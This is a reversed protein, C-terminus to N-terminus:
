KNNEIINTVYEKNFWYCFKDAKGGNPNDAAGLYSNKTGKPRVHFHKGNKKSWGAKWFHDLGIENNKVHKRIDQWYEEAIKLDKQPMTWFFAKELIMPGYDYHFSGKSINPHRFVMFLFRSSFLEYTTSDFWNENHYLEEYDINEYSMAEKLRNDSFLPITKLRLGSKVFEDANEIHKKGRGNYTGDSIIMCSAVYNIDKANVMLGPQYYDIIDQISKGIWPEIRKLIISELTNEKLDAETVLGTAISPIEINSVDSKEQDKVYSLVTRMYAPKLSFARKPALIDSFPQKRAKEGKKGKRCAALYETDGESLEHAEGRKIKNVITDFDQKIILLDKEPLQWIVTYIYRLDWKSVGKEYLYFIILMIRCKLYFLSTEFQENVVACYDIMDCVLRERIQLEGKKDKKLGTAKLELGAEQFDPTPANNIDYRFYYKEIMQGLGGKGQGQLNQENFLSKDVVENLSHGILRKSYEFISAISTKDYGLNEMLSKINPECIYLSKHIYQIIPKIQKNKIVFKLDDTLTEWQEKYQM